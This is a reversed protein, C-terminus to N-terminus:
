VEMDRDIEIEKEGGGVIQRVGGVRQLTQNLSSLTDKFSLSSYVLVLYHADRISARLM